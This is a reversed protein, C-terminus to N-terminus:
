KICNKEHTFLMDKRQQRVCCSIGANALRVCEEGECWLQTKCQNSQSLVHKATRAVTHLHIVHCSRLFLALFIETAGHHRAASYIMFALQSIKPWFLFNFYMDFLDKSNTDIM